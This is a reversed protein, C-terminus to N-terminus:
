QQDPDPRSGTLHDGDSSSADTRPSEVTDGDEATEAQEGASEEDISGESPAGM